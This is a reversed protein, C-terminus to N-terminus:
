WYDEDTERPDPKYRDPVEIWTENIYDRQWDPREWWRRGGVGFLVQLHGGLAIAARGRAKVAAALLCGLTGAAILAVDFERGAIRAEVDTALDLLTAYREQTPRAFGYPFELADVSAPEFWPKGTKRWVAEFTERTARERLLEAYPAVLLLRRGRLLPLWCRRADDPVSRDPEQDMYDVPRGEIGHHRLIDADGPWCDLRVGISDFTRMAQVLAGAFRALFGPEAPFIGSHRLGLHALKLEYARRRRLDPERELVIPYALVDRETLGVKAAAYGRGADLADRLDAIFEERTALRRVPAHSGSTM